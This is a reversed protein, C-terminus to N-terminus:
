RRDDSRYREIESRLEPSRWRRWIGIPYGLMKALDGVLRIAPILAAAALRERGSLAPARTHM